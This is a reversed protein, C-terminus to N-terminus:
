PRISPYHILHEGHFYIYVQGTEDEEWAGLMPVCQPLDEGDIFSLHLIKAENIIKSISEKDYHGREKHRGIANLKTKEYVGDDQSAAM